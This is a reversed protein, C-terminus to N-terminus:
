KRGAPTFNVFRGWRLKAILNQAGLPLRDLRVDIADERFEWMHGLVVEIAQLALAPIDTEDTYGATVEYRVNRPQQREAAWVTDYVPHIVPPRDDILVRYTTAITASNQTTLTGAPDTYEVEDVSVLPFIPLPQPESGTPFCDFRLTYVTTCFATMTEHQVFEVAAKLKQLVDADADDHSIRLHDKARELDFPTTAPQTKIVRSYPLPM